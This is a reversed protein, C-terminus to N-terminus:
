RQPASRELIQRRYTVLITDWDYRTQPFDAPVGSVATTEPTADAVTSGPVDVVSAGIEEPPPREGPGQRLARIREYYLASSKLVPKESSGTLDTYSFEHHVGEVQADRIYKEGTVPDTLEQPESLTSLDEGGHIFSIYQELTCIPRSIYNLATLGNEFQPQFGKKAEVDRTADLNTTPAKRATASGDTPGLYTVDKSKFDGEIVIDEIEMEDAYGDDEPVVMGIIERLDVSAKKNVLEQRGFLLTNYFSEASDFDQSIARVSDVPDVPASSLVVGLRAMDNKMVDFLESLTRGFSYNVSTSMSGGGNASSMTHSVNMVYGVTDLASARNDFTVCPFGPLIYPNFIMDVAGGRQEYRTRFYEYQSYLFFLSHLDNDAPLADVAEAAAKANQSARANALHTFWAPVPMRSVVPGKYFEEPFVLVNKGSATSNPAVGSADGSQRRVQMAADIEEPYGVTTAAAVLATRNMGQVFFQDNVYTRTPQKWYNESYTYGHIMSPFILNCSPATGFLMQPKVFYNVLRLPQTAPTGQDRPQDAPQLIAGDSLRAIVCPATPIMALECYAMGFLKQLLDYISGQDGVMESLSTSMAKLAYDAQVSQFIPFVGALPSSQDDEFQPLAVFRNHFNRKRAWRAFFNVCPLPRTGSAQPPDSLMGRLVNDLIDYPRTIDPQGEDGKATLFLGKKFVSFPYHVGPTFVTDANKGNTTEYGVVADVTNMFFFYLSQFVSMDGIANFTMMRGMPSNSYSWGLIEGEFMLRFAPNEPDYTTDLYFVVVELRDEAGLRQLLRHPPFSLTAEPIQWVGYNVTVQACPVQLGNVYVLWAGLQPTTESAESM